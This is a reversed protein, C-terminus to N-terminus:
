KEIRNFVLFIERLKWVENTGITKEEEFLNKPDYFYYDMSYQDNIIIDLEKENKKNQFELRASGNSMAIVRPMFTILDELARIIGATVLYTNNNLPLGNKDDWGRPLKTNKELKNIIRTIISDNSKQSSKKKRETPVSSNRVFFGELDSPDNTSFVKTKGTPQGNADRVQLVLEFTPREEKKAKEKSTSKTAM